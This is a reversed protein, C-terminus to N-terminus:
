LYTASGPPTSIRRQIPPATPCRTRILCWSTPMIAPACVGARRGQVFYDRVKMQLVANIRAFTYVMVGILARDRFGVLAPEETETGEKDATKRVMKISDLLERAEEANLVPTKGKKVVYTPGRVAHAPNVDLIHGTVLWDFLMRLAALHQKVTPPSFEGQLHKVFAAVHFAQVDALQGIGKQDCWAAFRRTANM